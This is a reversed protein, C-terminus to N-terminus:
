NREELSEWFAKEEDFTGKNRGVKADVDEDAPTPNTNEGIGWRGANALEGSSGIDSALQRM